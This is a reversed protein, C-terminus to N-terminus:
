TYETIRVAGTSDSSWIGDVRGTYVPQSLEFFESPSLKVTFDTTSATTGCKLYLTSTSDNYFSAGLRASNSSLLTTSSATDNVSTVTATSSRNASPLPNTASVDGSNVGDGGYILKVRQYKQGSIEDTAIVDGGQGVNIQTGDAM